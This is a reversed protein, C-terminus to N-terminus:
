ADGVSAAAVAAALAARGSVGVKAFAKSLHSEVTKESLFLRAAIQRNTLGAAVLDSLERERVSLADVGTGASSRPGGRGVRRGLGRLERTAADATRRMGGADALRYADSLHELARERDIAALARGAILHGTAADLAAHIAAAHGIAAEAHAAAEAGDAIMARSLAAAALAGSLGSQEALATARAATQSAGARDGTALQAEVLRTSWRCIWGPEVDYGALLPIAEAAQGHALLVSGLVTNAITLLASRDLNQALAVSERACLLATDLDGLDLQVWARMWLAWQLPQDAHALRAVLEARDAVVASDSTRGLLGLALVEALLLPVEVVLNGARHVAAASRRAVDLADDLREIAVLAWTAAVMLDPHTALETDTADHIARVAVDAESQSRSVDGGFSLLMANMAAAAARVLPNAAPRASATWRALEPYDGREYACLMLAATLDEVLCGDDLARVLRRRAAEHAGLQREVSGAALHLRARDVPSGAAFSLGEDALALAEQQRGSQVLIEALDSFEALTSPPASRKAALLWDAAISPAQGRVQQAAARLTAAEVVDGPSVTHTLHRAQEVLPRAAAALAEAAHAHGLLRTALAQGEYIASRVVPHRFRFEKLNGGGRVLGQIALRDVAALARDLDLGAIARAIDLDFPDGLLSGARALAVADPGLSGLEDAVAAVIGRPVPGGTDSRGLEQLLLPNGGAREYLDDREADTRDSGLLEDAVLRSLPGLDLVQVTRGSARCAAVVSDAVDGPRLGLAILHSTRPPRRLLLDVLELSAPDGWHLDDLVLAVPRSDDLASSVAALRQWRSDPSSEDVDPLALAGRFLALPADRELETARGLRIEFRRREAEEVLRGLLGTKGIGAEGRLVIVPRNGAQAADLAARIAAIEEDRGVLLM